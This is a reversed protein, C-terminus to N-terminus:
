RPCQLCHLATSHQALVCRVPFGDILYRNCRSEQIANRLLQLSIAVPVIKGESMCADILAGHVSNKNNREARLLDGASLHIIGFEKSLLESQTGKGAGPGGLVFLIRPKFEMAAAEFEVTEVNTMQASKHFGPRPRPRMQMPRTLMKFAFRFGVYFLSRAFIM